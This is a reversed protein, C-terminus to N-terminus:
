YHKSYLIHLSTMILSNNFPIKNMIIQGKDSLRNSPTLARIFLDDNSNALPQSKQKKLQVEENPM